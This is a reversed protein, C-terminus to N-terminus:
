FAIVLANAGLTQVAGSSASSPSGASPSTTAVSSITITSSLSGTSSTAPTGLNVNYIKGICANQCAVNGSCGDMCSLAADAKEDEPTPPGALSFTFIVM